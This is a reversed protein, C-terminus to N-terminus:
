ENNKERIDNKMKFSKITVMIGILIFGVGIGIGFMGTSFSANASHEMTLIAYQTLTIAVLADALSLAKLFSIIPSKFKKVKFWSIISSIIKTFGMLAILLVINRNYHQNIGHQLMFYSTGAFTIGLFGYLIGGERLYKNEIKLREKQPLHYVRVKSYKHIFYLRTVFLVIYYVGFLLFWLSFFYLGIILKFLGFFSSSITSLASYLVVRDEKRSIIEKLNYKKLLILLFNKIKKIM